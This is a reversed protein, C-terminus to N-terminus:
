IQGELGSGIACVQAERDDLDQFGASIAAKSNDRRKGKPRVHTWGGSFRECATGDELGMVGDVLQCREPVHAVVENAAQEQVLGADDHEEVVTRSAAHIARQADGLGNGKADMPAQLLHLAGKTQAISRM